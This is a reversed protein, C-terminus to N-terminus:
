RKRSLWRSSISSTSIREPNKRTRCISSHHAGYGAGHAYFEVIKSSLNSRSPSNFNILDLISVKLENWSIQSPPFHFNFPFKEIITGRCRAYRLHGNFACLLSELLVSKSLLGYIWAQFTSICALLCVLKLFGVEVGFFFLAWVPDGM